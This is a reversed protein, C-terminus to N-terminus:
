VCEYPNPVDITCHNHGDYYYLFWSEVRCIFCVEPVNRNAGIKESDSPSKFPWIGHQCILGEM